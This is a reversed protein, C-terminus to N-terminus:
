GIVRDLIIRGDFGGREARKRLREREVADMTFGHCACLALVCEMVDALEGVSPKERFEAAEEALKAALRAPYETEGAIRTVARKGDKAVVDPIRDRVLKDYVIETM